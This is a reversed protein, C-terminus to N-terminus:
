LIKEDASQHMQNMHKLGTDYGKNFILDILKRCDQDLDIRGGSIVKVAQRRIIKTMMSTFQPYDISENKAKLPLKFKPKEALINEISRM